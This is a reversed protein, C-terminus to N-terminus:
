HRRWLIKFIQVRNVDRALWFFFGQVNVSDVIGGLVSFLFIFFHGGNVEIGPRSGLFSILFIGSRLFHCM